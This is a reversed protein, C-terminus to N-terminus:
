KKLRAIRSDILEIETEIDFKEAKYENLKVITTWILVATFFIGLSMISEEAGMKTAMSKGSGKLPIYPIVFTAIPLFIIPKILFNFKAKKHQNLKEQLDIKDKELQNIDYMEVRNKGNSIVDRPKARYRRWRVNYKRNFIFNKTFFFM